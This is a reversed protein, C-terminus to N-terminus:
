PVKILVSYHVRDPWAWIGWDVIVYPPEIRVVRGLKESPKMKFLPETSHFRALADFDLRVRDGIRLNFNM